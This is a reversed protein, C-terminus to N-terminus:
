LIIDTADKKEFEDLRTILRSLGGVVQVMQQRVEALRWPALQRAHKEYVNLNEEVADHDGDFTAALAEVCQWFYDGPM